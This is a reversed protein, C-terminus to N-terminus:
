LSNAEALGSKVRKICTMILLIVVVWAAWYLWAPLTPIVAYFLGLLGFLFARDSKGLPGDYRRTKGQVQGLVGCFETLASLWIILGIQFADFPFILAFPLYLAADSVVDTIENLYGGLRSKQNFERALMGDIANLAMRVFLWLPILLFLWHYASLATLILGLIVSVACATLTVQNATIGHQALKVTFPRLLNQFKPKLDYISM